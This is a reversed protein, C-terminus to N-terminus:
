RPRTFHAYITRGTPKGQAQLQDIEENRVKLALNNELQLLEAHGYRELETGEVMSKKITSNARGALLARVNDLAIRNPTRTDVGGDMASLSALIQIQGAWIQKATTGDTVIGVGFYVGPLWGATTGFPINVSHDKGSPVSTFDIKTSAIGRLSYNITWGSDAPYDALTKTFQLTEGARLQAPESKPICASM